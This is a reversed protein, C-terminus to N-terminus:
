GQPLQPLGRVYRTRGGGEAFATLFEDRNGHERHSVHLWGSSPNGDVYFELIVQDIDVDVLGRLTHALKLNDVGPCELDAAEGLPHSGTRSGGVVLNLAPCRYGSSIRLPRGVAARLPELVRLCLRRLNEVVFEPPTNDIGKRSAMQSRTFEALTFHPSLNV